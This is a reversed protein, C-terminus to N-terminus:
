GEVVYPLSDGGDPHTPLCLCHAHVNGALNKHWSVQTVEGTLSRLGSSFEALVRSGVRELGPIQVLAELPLSRVVMEAASLKSKRNRM